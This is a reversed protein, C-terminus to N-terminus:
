CNFAYKDKYFMQLMEAGCRVVFCYIQSFTKFTIYFLDPLDLRTEQMSMCNQDTGYIGYKPLM